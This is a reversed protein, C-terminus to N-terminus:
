KWICCFPFIFFRLSCKQLVANTWMIFTKSYNIEQVDRASLSASCHQFHHSPGMQHVSLSCHSPATKHHLLLWTQSNHRHHYLIEHQVPPQHSAWTCLDRVSLMINTQDLSFENWHFSIKLRKRQGYFKKLCSYSNHYTAGKENKRKKQKQSTYLIYNYIYIYIQLYQSTICKLM